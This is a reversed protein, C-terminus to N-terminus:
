LLVQSAALSLFPFCASKNPLHFLNTPQRFTHYTTQQLPAYADMVICLSDNLVSDILSTHVSHCWVPRCYEATPYVLYLSTSCLTKAGAGWRSGALQRLLTPCSSLKKHLAMLHHCFTLLRDLKVVLYSPIPCFPLVRINKYVSLEHKTEQNRLHFAAMVM